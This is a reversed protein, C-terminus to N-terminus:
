KGEKMLRPRLVVDKNAYYYLYTSMSLREQDTGTFPPMFPALQQTIATIANVGELTRGRLRQSISNLGDLTHCAGCNADFLAKGAVAAPAQVDNAAIWKMSKLMSRGEKRAAVWQELKIQNAFMYGPLLYPGRVFERVREFETVMGLCLIITPIFLFMSTRRLRLMATVATLVIFLVAVANVLPLLWTFQALKSTAVAYRWHTLFTEPVRSFYIVASAGTVIGAILLVLGCLRLAQGRNKDAGHYRWGLWGIAFMAGLAIGAAIRLICQPLFTPNFYAQVFTGNWPWGDPTLMFGLIGSILVASILAAVVYGWGLLMLTYPKSEALRDWNYYYILLIIVETTFALWEIFWPWFFLHILSGIGGPALAGTIFWIGVGTVAGVSTTIIVIPLLLSHAIDGWFRGKGTAHLTQFLAVMITLGIAVGHSIVVHLVADLAITMGDGLWPIHLLPFNM